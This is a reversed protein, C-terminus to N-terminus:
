IVRFMFLLTVLGIVILTAVVIYGYIWRRRVRRSVMVAIPLAEMYRNVSWFNWLGIIATLAGAVVMMAGMNRAATEVADNSNDELMRSAFNFVTFGFGILSVATRSWALLTRLNSLDSRLWSLESTTPDGKGALDAM